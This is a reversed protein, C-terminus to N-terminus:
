LALVLPATRFICSDDLWPVCLEARPTPSLHPQHPRSHCSSSVEASLRSPSNGGKVEKRSQCSATSDKGAVAYRRDVVEPLNSTQDEGSNQLGSEQQTRESLLLFTVFKESSNNLVQLSSTCGVRPSRSRLLEVPAM